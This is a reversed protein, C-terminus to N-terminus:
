NDFYESELAAKALVDEADPDLMTVADYRDALDHVRGRLAWLIEADPSSIEGTSRAYEM